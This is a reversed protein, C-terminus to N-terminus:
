ICVPWCAFSTTAFANPNLVVVHTCDDSHCRHWAAIDVTQVSDESKHSSELSANSGPRASGLKRGAFSIM